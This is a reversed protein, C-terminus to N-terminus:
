VSFAACLVQRVASQLAERGAPKALWRIPFDSEFQHLASRDASGSLIVAAIKQGRERLFSLLSAASDDGLHLDSVIVDPKVESLLRVADAGNTATFIDAALEGLFRRHTRCTADDDDVVLIRSVRPASETPAAPVAPPSEALPLELEFVSGGNIGPRYHLDGGNARALGRAIMLGLGSGQKAGASSLRSFENFLFCRESEPIGSGTDCFSIRMRGHEGAFAVRIGGRETYKVANSLINSVIRRLHRADAVVAAAPIEGADFALGHHEAQTRYWELVRPLFESLPLPERSPELLGRQHRTYDIIDALTDLQDELCEEVVLLRVRQEPNLAGPSESLLDRLAYLASNGPARLDHSMGLLIDRQRERDALREAVKEATDFAASCYECVDKLFGLKEKPLTPQHLGFGLWIMGRVGANSAIPVSLISGIGFISFDHISGRPPLFAGWQLGSAGGDELAELYSLLPEDIRRLPAGACYEVRPEASRNSRVVVAVATAEPLSRERILDGVTCATKSIEDASVTLRTGIEVPRPLGSDDSGARRLAQSLLRRSDHLRSVRRIFFASAFAGGLLFAAFAILAAAVIM